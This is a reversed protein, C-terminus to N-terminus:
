CSQPLYRYEFHTLHLAAAIIDGARAALVAVGEDRQRYATARSVGFGAGLLAVDEGTRVRVAGALGPPLPDVRPNGPPHRPRPAQRVGAARPVAGPREPRRAPCSLHDCPTRPMHTTKHHSSGVSPGV